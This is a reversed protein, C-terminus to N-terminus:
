NLKILIKQSDKGSRNAAGEGTNRLLETCSARNFNCHILGVICLLCHKLIAKKKKLHLLNVKIFSRFVELIVTCLSVMISIILFSDLGTDLLSIVRFFM